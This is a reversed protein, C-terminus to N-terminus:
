ASASACSSAERKVDGNAIKLKKEANEREVRTEELKERVAKRANSRIGWRYEADDEDEDKDNNDKDENDNDNGNSKEEEDGFKRRQRRTWVDGEVEEEALNEDKTM